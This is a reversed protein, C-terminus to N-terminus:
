KSCSSHPPVAATRMSRARRLAPVARQPRLAHRLACNENGAAGAVDAAVGALRERAGAAERDRQVVQDVPVFRGDAPAGQDLTVNAVAGEHLARNTLVADLGHDVEGPVGVHALRHAVRALVEAVIHGCAERKELRHLGATDAAEHKGRGARGVTNGLGQRDDFLVGLAGDVRVALRLEEDLARQM